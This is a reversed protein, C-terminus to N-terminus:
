ATAPPRNRQYHRAQRARNGCADSCWERRPHQKIFYLVCGPALCARLQSGAVGGFLAVAARAIDAVLVPGPTATSVRNAEPSGGDPWDLVPWAAATCALANVTRLAASTGIPQPIAERPDDCRRSALNRVAERLGRLDRHVPALDGAPPRRLWQTLGDVEVDSREAIARIWAVTDSPTALGDHVGGRDAWITNMLEVPLPEGLLPASTDSPTM